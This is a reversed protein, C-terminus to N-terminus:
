PSPVTAYTRIRGKKDIRLVVGCAQDSVYLNGHADFRLEEPDSLEARLAPGADFGTCGDTGRGAVM